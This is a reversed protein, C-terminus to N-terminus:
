DSLNAEISAALLLAEHLQYANEVLQDAELKDSLDRLCMLVSTADDLELIQDRFERIAAVCLLNIFSFDTPTISFIADWIQWVHVMEFERSMLVRVWRLLFMEPEIGLASLHRAAPPDCRSLIQDQIRNMQDALPSLGSHRKVRNRTAYADPCYAGAMRCMIEELLVYADHEIFAGDTVERVLTEVADRCCDSYKVYEGNFPSLKLFESENLYDADDQINIYSEVYVYSSEDQDYFEDLKDLSATSSSAKMLAETSPWQEIHLLYVITALLEGMGQNYSIEPHACSYSYLVRILMRQVAEDRFFDMACRTRRVDKYIDHLLTDEAVECQQVFESDTFASDMTFSAFQARVKEYNQRKDRAILKWENFPVHLPFYDLWLKWAINRMCSWSFGGKVAQVRIDNIDSKVFIELFEDVRTKPERVQIEKLTEFSANTTLRRRKKSSAQPGEPIFLGQSMRDISNCIAQAWDNAERGNEACLFWTKEETIVMLVEELVDMHASHLHICGIPVSSQSDSYFYLGLDGM